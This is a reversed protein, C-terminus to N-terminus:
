IGNDNKIREMLKEPTDYMFQKKISYGNKKLFNIQWDADSENNFYVGNIIYVIIKNKDNVGIFNKQFKDKSCYSKSGDEYLVEILTEKKTALCYKKSLINQVLM